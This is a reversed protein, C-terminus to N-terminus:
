GEDVGLADAAVHALEHVRHHLHAEVLMEAEEAVCQRSRPVGLLLEPDLAGASLEAAQAERRAVRRAQQAEQLLAHVVEDAAALHEVVDERVPELHALRHLDGRDEVRDVGQVRAVERRLRRRM